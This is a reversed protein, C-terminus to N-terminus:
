TTGTLVPTHCMAILIADVDEKTTMEGQGNQYGIQLQIYVGTETRLWVFWDTKPDFSRKHPANAISIRM